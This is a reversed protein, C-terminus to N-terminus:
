GFVLHDSRDSMDFTCRELQLGATEISAYQKRFVFTTYLNAVRADADDLRPLKQKRAAQRGYLGHMPSMALLELGAAEALRALTPGWVLYEHGDRATDSEQTVTDDLSFLLRHGFEGEPPEAPRPGLRLLRLTAPVDPPLLVAEERGGLMNLVMAADPSIGFFIGGPRLLLGVQRLLTAAAHETCFAFQICFMAAIADAGASAGAEKLAPMLLAALDPNLMDQQRFEVQTRRGAGADARARAEDLRAGSLDTAIVHQVGAHQWKSLDGGRGCGLDVLCRAGTAHEQILHRKVANAFRKYSYLNGNQRAAMAQFFFASPHM